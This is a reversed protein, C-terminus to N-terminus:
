LVFRVRQDPKPEVTEFATTKRATLNKALVWQGGEKRYMELRMDALMSSHCYRKEGNPGRYEVGVIAPIDRTVTGVFKADGCVAEFQWLKLDHTSKNKMWKFISNARYERGEVIFYFLALPPTPIPGVKIEATVGEFVATPDESFQNCNGWVWRRAYATGWLHAQHAPHHALVITEKDIVFRGSIHTSLRPELFKTKPFPLRYLFPYPYLSASLTPDEFRLDWRIEHNSDALEGYASDLSLFNEQIQLFRESHFPDIRFLPYTKKLAIAGPANARSFIGWVSAEAKEKEKKPVLLTYRAWFSWGKEGDVIKLYYVEYFPSRKGDWFLHNGNSVSNLSM